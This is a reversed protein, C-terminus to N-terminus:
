ILTGKVDAQEGNSDSILKDLLHVFNYVVRQDDPAIFHNRLNRYIAAADEEKMEITIM